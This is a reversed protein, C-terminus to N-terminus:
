HGEGPESQEGGEGWHPSPFFSVGDGFSLLM